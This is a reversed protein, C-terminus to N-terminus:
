RRVVRDAMSGYQKSRTLTQLTQLIASQPFVSILNEDYAHDQAEFLWFFISNGEETDPIPLRGAWSRPLTPSDPLSSVEFQSVDFSNRPAASLLLM